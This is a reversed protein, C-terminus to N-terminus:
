NNTISFFNFQHQYNFNATITCACPYYPPESDAISWKEWGLSENYDKTNAELSSRINLFDAPSNLM